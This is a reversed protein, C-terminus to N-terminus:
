WQNLIGPVGLGLDDQLPGEVGFHGAVHHVLDLAGVAVRQSLAM